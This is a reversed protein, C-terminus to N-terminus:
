IRDVDVHKLLVLVTQALSPRFGLRSELRNQVEHLREATEGDVTINRPRAEPNKPAPGRSNVGSAGSRATRDAIDEDPPM